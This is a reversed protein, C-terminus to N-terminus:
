CKKQPFNGMKCLLMTNTKLVKGIQFLDITDKHHLPRLNSMKVILAKRFHMYPGGSQTPHARHPIEWDESTVKCLLNSSSM